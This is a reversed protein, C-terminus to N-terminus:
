YTFQILYGDIKDGIIMCDTAERRGHIMTSYFHLPEDVGGVESASTLLPGCGLYPGNGRGLLVKQRKEARNFLRLGDLLWFIRKQSFFM